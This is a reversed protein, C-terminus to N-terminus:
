PKEDLLKKIVPDTQNPILGAARIIGKRDIVVYTPFFSVGFAKCTKGGDDVSLPYNIQKDKAMAAMKESGRNSEHVGIIVLGDKEHQKALEINHPISRVCPGCWTAWFDVVIVKGKLSALNQPEGIWNKVKLAPAKKGELGKLTASRGGFYWEDPFEGKAAPAVAASAAFASTEAAPSLWLWGGLITLCLLAIPLCFRCCM